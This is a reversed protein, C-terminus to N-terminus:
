RVIDAVTGAGRAIARGTGIHRMVRRAFWDNLIIAMLM